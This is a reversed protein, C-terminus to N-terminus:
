SILAADRAYDLLDNAYNGMVTESLASAWNAFSAIENSGYDSGTDYHLGGIARKRTPNAVTKAQAGTVKTSTADPGFAIATRSAVGQSVILVGWTGPTWSAPIALVITSGSTGSANLWRLSDVGGSSYWQLLDGGVAVGRSRGVSLMTGGIHQTVGSAPRKILYAESYVAADDISSILGNIRGAALVASKTTYGPEAGRGYTVAAGSGGGGTITATPATTDDAPQGSIGAAQVSNAASIEAFGTLGEAGSGTLTVTPTSVFGTGNTLATPAIGRRLPLGHVLGIRSASSVGFRWHEIADAFPDPTVVPKSDALPMVPGLTAVDVVLDKFSLM